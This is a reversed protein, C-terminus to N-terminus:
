DRLQLVEIVFVNNNKVVTIKQKNESAPHVILYGPYKLGDSIRSCIDEVLDDINM